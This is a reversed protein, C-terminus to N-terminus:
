MRSHIWREYTPPQEKRERPVYSTALCALGIAGFAFGTFVWPRALRNCEDIFEQGDSEYARDNSHQVGDSRFAASLARGCTQNIGLPFGYIEHALCVGSILFFLVSLLALGPRRSLLFRAHRLVSVLQKMRERSLYSLSFALTGLGIFIFGAIV